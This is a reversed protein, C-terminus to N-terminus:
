ATIVIDVAQDHVQTPIEDVLQEAYCTGIRLCAGDLKSALRDYHGGGQGLRAGEHTFALGPFVVVALLLPDLRGPMVHLDPGDVQPSFAHWGRQRADTYWRSTDPETPTSEFLLMMLPINRRARTLVAEVVGDWIHQSRRVRETDDASIAARVTRMETRLASKREAIDDAPM